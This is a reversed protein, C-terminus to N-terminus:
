HQVSYGAGAIAKEVAAENALANDFTVTLEGKAQDSAVRMVGKVQRVAQETKYIDGKSHWGQIRLSIVQEAAGAAGALLLAALWSRTTM